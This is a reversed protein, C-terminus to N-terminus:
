KENNCWREYEKVDKFFGHIEFNESFDLEDYREDILGNYDRVLYTFGMKYNWSEIRKIVLFREKEAIYDFVQVVNGKDFKSRIEM